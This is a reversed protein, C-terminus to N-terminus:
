IFPVSDIGGEYYTGENYHNNLYDKIQNYYDNFNMTNQIFVNHHFSNVQDNVIARLIM